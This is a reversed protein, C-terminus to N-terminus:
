PSDTRRYGWVNLSMDVLLNTMAAEGKPPLPYIMCYLLTGKLSIGWYTLLEVPDKDGIDVGKFSRFFEAVATYRSIDFTKIEDALQGGNLIAANMAKVIARNDTMIQFYNKVVARMYGPFDNLDIDAQKIMLLKGMIQTGLGKELIEFKGGPYYKYILGVSVDAARAIDRITVQEYGMTEILSRTAENIAEIKADKDRVISKRDGPVTKKALM